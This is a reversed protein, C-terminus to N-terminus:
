FPQFGILDVSSVSRFNVNLLVIHRSMMCQSASDNMRWPWPMKLTFWTWRQSRFGHPSWMGDGSLHVHYRALFQPLSTLRGINELKNLWVTLGNAVLLFHALCQWSVSPTGVPTPVSNTEQIMAVSHLLAANSPEEKPRQCVTGANM